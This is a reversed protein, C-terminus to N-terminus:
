NRCMKPKLLSQAHFDDGLILKGLCLQLYLCKFCLAQLYFSEPFIVLGGLVANGVFNSSLFQWNGARLVTQHSMNGVAFSPQKGISVLAVQTHLLMCIRSSGVNYLFWMSYQLNFLLDSKIFANKLLGCNLDQYSISSIQPRNLLQINVRNAKIISFIKHVCFHSICIQM